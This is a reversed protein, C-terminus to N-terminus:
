YSLALTLILLIHISNWVKTRKDNHHDRSTSIGTHPSSVLLIRLNTNGPQIAPYFATAQELPRICM